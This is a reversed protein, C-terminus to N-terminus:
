DLSVHKTGLPEGQQKEKEGQKQSRIKATGQTMMSRGSLPVARLGNKTLVSTTRSAKKTM